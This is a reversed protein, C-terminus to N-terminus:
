VHMVARNKALLKGVPSKDFQKSLMHCTTTMWEDKPLDPIIPVNIIKLFSTLSPTITAVPEKDSDSAPFLRRVHKLIFVTEASTPTATTDLFLGELFMHASLIELKSKLDTRLLRNFGLILDPGFDTAKIM